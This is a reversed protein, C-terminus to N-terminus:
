SNKKEEVNEQSDVAPIGGTKFAKLLDNIDVSKDLSILKALLIISHRFFLLVMYASDYKIYVMKFYMDSGTSFTRKQSM